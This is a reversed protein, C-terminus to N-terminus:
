TVLGPTKLSARLWDWPVAASPRVDFLTQLKQLCKCWHFSGNVRHSAFGVAVIRVISSPRRGQKVDTQVSLWIITMQRQGRAAAFFLQMSPWHLFFFLSLTDATTWDSWNQISTLVTYLLFTFGNEVNRLRGTNSSGFTHVSLVKVYEHGKTCRVLLEHDPGLGQANFKGLLVVQPAPCSTMRFCPPPFPPSRAHKLVSLLVTAHGQFRVIGLPHNVRVKHSWLDRERLDSSGAYRTTSSNPSTPSSSSASTWNWRSRCPTRRWAAAQTGAWRAPRRGCDCRCARASFISTSNWSTSDAAAPLMPFLAPAGRGAVLRDSESFSQELGAPLPTATHTWCLRKEPGFLVLFHYLGAFSADEVQIWSFFSISLNQQTWFLSNVKVSDSTFPTSFPPVLESPSPFHLVAFFAILNRQRRPRLYIWFIM